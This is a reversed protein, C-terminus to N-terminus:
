VSKVVARDCAWKLLSPTILTTVLVMLIVAALGRHDIIGVKVGLNAIIIAVEARPVMGIGIQLAGESAFGSVKAGLGCGIVKGLVGMSIFLIGLGLAENAVTLDVGMGISVFFIPTFILNGVNSVDHSIQHRFDTMSFIVGAFYAGTIAAVGLEESIFALILCAVVSFPVIHDEIRFKECCRSAFKVILTGVVFAFMFFAFIKGIVMFVSSGFEPKIMGVILTLLVIGVVDDIIAAGLIGVGEPTSLRRLERLTQVSISVSTATSIVGMFLSETWSGTYFYSTSAVFLLPLVVGGFAILSSSKSSAKLEKVDTELGAIFMLFIVGMEGLSEIMPTKQFLGLGLIVGAIIQGLVAPQRLRRSIIGGINAVLLICGIEFIFALKSEM